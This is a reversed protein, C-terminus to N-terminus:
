ARRLAATSRSGRSFPLSHNLLDTLTSSALTRRSGLLVSCPVIQALGSYKGIRLDAEGDTATHHRFLGVVEGRDNVVVSGSNGSVGDATSLLDSAASRRRAEADSVILGTSVRLDGNANRYPSGATLIASQNAHSVRLGM